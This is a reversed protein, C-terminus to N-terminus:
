PHWPKGFADVIEELSVITGTVFGLIGFLVILTNKVLRCARVSFITCGTTQPIESKIGKVKTCDDGGEIASNNGCCSITQDGDKEWFTVVEIIAPFMIGLTSLCVAGVLSIFPGLNPIAAAICVTLVVLVTRILYEYLAPRQSCHPKLGKWIIEMPVYFQLGYTLFIAVAIMVKVSQALIDETPLNLTVSGLTDDGYKLYGFFGFGSYLLVVIFMGINLVGPCGVFHTPTKMNNELPMVVGIGELAFIATGFFLPLQHVTSFQPRESPAPLETFIYYFTIAMGTAILLNALMSFPALHKLNRVWSLLICPLLLLAMYIRIDLDHSSNFDVVQKINEAVFVIYVCCCGLLDIVLFVNITGKAIGSLKQLKKPGALFAAEAVEAFGLSPVRTRYCM